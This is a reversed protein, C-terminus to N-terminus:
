PIMEFCAMIQDCAQGLCATFQNIRDDTYLVVSSKQCGTADLGCETYKSTCTDAYQQAAQTPVLSNITSNVCVLGDGTCAMKTVCTAFTTFADGNWVRGADGCNWDYNPVDTWGCGAAHESYDSCLSQVDALSAPAGPQSGIGANEGSNPSSSSCASLALALVIAVVENSSSRRRQANIFRSLSTLVRM